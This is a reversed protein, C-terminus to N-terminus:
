LNKAQEIHSLRHIFEATIRDYTPSKLQSDGTMRMNVPYELGYGFEGIFDYEGNAATVVYNLSSYDFLVSLDTVYKDAHDGILFILNTKTCGVLTYGKTQMMSTISKAGSGWMSGEYNIMDIHPPVTPNYEIVVIKHPTEMRKAIQYDDGDVDISCVDAVRTTHKDINTVLAHEIGVSPYNAVRRKLKRFLPASSEILLASAGWEKWLRATNSCFLGDAAGFEIVFNSREELTSILYAIIGDEGNQSYVNDKLENLNKM